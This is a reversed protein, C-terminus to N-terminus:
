EKIVEILQGRKYRLIKELAGKETWIRMIGDAQGDFWHSEEKLSGNAHWFREMGDKRGKLFSAEARPSGDSFKEVVMGTYPVREVDFHWLGTKKDRVLRKGDETRIKLALRSNEWRLSELESELLKIKERRGLANEDQDHNKKPEASDTCGFLSLLLSFLIFKM